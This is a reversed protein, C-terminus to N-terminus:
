QKPALNEFYNDVIGQVKECVPDVGGGCGYIWILKDPYAYELGPDGTECFSGQSKQNVEDKTWNNYNPTYLITYDGINQGFTEGSSVRTLYAAFQSNSPACDSNPALQYSSSVVYANWNTIAAIVSSTTIDAADQISQTMAPTILFFSSLIWHYTYDDLNNNVIELFGGQYPVVIIENTTMNYLVSGHFVTAQIDNFTTTSVTANTYLDAGNDYSDNSFYQQMSLHNPNGIMSVSFVYEAELGSSTANQSLIISSSNSDGNVFLFGPYTFSFNYTKNNYHQWVSANIKAYAAADSPLYTLTESSTPSVNNATTPATSTTLSNVTTTTQTSITPQNQSPSQSSKWAFYGIVGVVIIVAIVCIVVLSSFGKRNMFYNYCVENSEQGPLPFLFNISGSKIQCIFLVRVFFGKSRCLSDFIM